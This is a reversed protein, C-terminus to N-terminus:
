SVIFGLIIVGVLAAIGKRYEILSGLGFNGTLDAEKNIAVNTKFVYSTPMSCEGSEEPGHLHIEWLGKTPLQYFKEVNGPIIEQIITDGASSKIIVKAKHGPQDRYKTNTFGSTDQAHLKVSVNDGAKMESPRNELEVILRHRSDCLNWSDSESWSSKYYPIYSM